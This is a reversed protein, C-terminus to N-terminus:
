ESEEDSEFAEEEEDSGDDVDFSDDIKYSKPAAKTARGRAAPKKVVVEDEDSGLESVSSQRARKGPSSVVSSPVSSTIKRSAAKVPVSVPTDDDDSSLEIVTSKKPAAAALSAVPKFAKGPMVAKIAGLQRKKPEAAAGEKVALMTTAAKKRPPTDDFAFADAAPADDESEDFTNVPAKKAAATKTAKPKAPPKAAVEKDLKAKVAKKAAPKPKAPEAVVDDDSKDSDEIVKAKVAKKTVVPKPKVPEPAIENDSDDLEVIKAVVKKAAPKRKVVPRKEEVVEEMFDDSESDEEIVAAKKKAAAPKPPAVKPPPAEGDSESDSIVFAPPKSVALPAKSGVKLAGPLPSDGMMWSPLPKSDAAVEVIKEAPKPPVYKPAAKPKAAIAKKAKPKSDMFDDDDSIEMLDDDGGKKRAAAKKKAAATKGGKIPKRAGRRSESEHLEQEYADWHMLFEDLDTRWLMVPTKGSLVTIEEQKLAREKSLTEVKEYTLSWIAMGLLYDYDGMTPVDGGVSEEEDDENDPLDDGAVKAAKVKPIRFYERRVLENLIDLKKRNQVVLKGSIIEQIFRVKNDLKTWEFTLRALM